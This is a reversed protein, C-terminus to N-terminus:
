STKAPCKIMHTHSTHSHEIPTHVCTYLANICIRAHPHTYMCPYATYVHRCVACTCIHPQPHTFPTYLAYKHIWSLSYLLGVCASIHVTFTHKRTHMNTNTSTTHTCTHVHTYMHTLQTCTHSYKSTCTHTYMHCMIPTRKHTHLHLQAYTCTHVSVPCLHSCM